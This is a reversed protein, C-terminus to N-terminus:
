WAIPSTIEVSGLFPVMSSTLTITERCSSDKNDAWFRFRPIVVGLRLHRFPPEHCTAIAPSPPLLTPPPAHQWEVISGKGASLKRSRLNETQIHQHSLSFYDLDLRDTNENIINNVVSQTKRRKPGRSKPSSPSSSVSMSLESLSLLEGQWRVNNPLPLPCRFLLFVNPM